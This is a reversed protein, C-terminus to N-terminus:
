RDRFRVGFPGLCQVAARFPRAALVAALANRVAPAAKVIAQGGLVDDAGRIRGSM